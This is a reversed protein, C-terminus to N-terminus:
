VGYVRFVEIRRILSGHADTTKNFDFFSLNLNKMNLAKVILDTIPAMHIPMKENENVGYVANQELNCLFIDDCGNMLNKNFGGFIQNTVTQVILLRNVEFDEARKQQQIVEFNDHEGDCNWCFQIQLFMLPLSPHLHNCLLDILKKQNDNDMENLIVSNASIVCDCYGIITNKINQHLRDNSLHQGIYGCILYDFIEETTYTLLDLHSQDFDIEKSVSLHFNGFDKVSETYVFVQSMRLPSEGISYRRNHGDDKPSEINRAPIHEEPAQVCSCKSGM